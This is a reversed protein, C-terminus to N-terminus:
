KQVTMGMLFNHRAVPQNHNPELKPPAAPTTSQAQTEPTKRKADEGLVLRVSRPQDAQKQPQPAAAALAAKVADQVMTGIAANVDNAMVHGLKEALTSVFGEDSALNQSVQQVIVEVVEASMAFEEEATQTEEEMTTNEQASAAIEIPRDATKLRLADGLILQTLQNDVGLGDLSLRVADRDAPATVLSWEILESSPIIVNTQDEYMREMDDATFFVQVSSARLVGSDYLDAIIGTDFDGLSWGSVPIKMRHFRINDAVLRPKGENTELSLDSTGLPISSDHKWWFQPNILWPELRIGSPKLIFHKGSFWDLHRLPNGSAVVMRGESPKTQEIHDLQLYPRSPIQSLLTQQPM